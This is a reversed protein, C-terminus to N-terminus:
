KVVKYDLVIAAKAKIKSAGKHNIVVWKGVLGEIDTFNVIDKLVLEIEHSMLDSMLSLTVKSEMPETENKTIQFDYIEFAFLTKADIKEFGQMRVELPEELTKLNWPECVMHEKIHEFLLASEEFKTLDYDRQEVQHRPQGFDEVTNRRYRKFIVTARDLRNLKSEKLRVLITSRLKNNVLKFMRIGNSITQKVFLTDIREREAWAIYDNLVSSVVTATNTIKKKYGHRGVVHQDTGKHRLAVLM